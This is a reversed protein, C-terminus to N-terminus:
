LTLVEIYYICLSISPQIVVDDFPFIKRANSAMRAPFEGTMQSNGACLGTVRLKSTKKSIHGFLRNLLCHHPQHNSVGDRENHRWQLPSPSLYISLPHPPLLFLFLCLARSMGSCWLWLTQISIVAIFKHYTRHPGNYVMGDIIGQGRACPIHGRSKTM